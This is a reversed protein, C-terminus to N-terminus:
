KRQALSTWNLIVTLPNSTAPQDENPPAPILVRKGDNAIAYDIYSTQGSLIRLSRPEFMAVPQGVQVSGSTFTLAVSMVRRDNGLYVLGKGDSRWLPFRGGATSVRWKGANADPFPRIYIESQVSEDSEYAMWREDPSLRGNSEDFQTQLYPKPTPPGAAPLVWLDMKAQADGAAYVIWHTSWDTPRKIVDSKVLVEEDGLGNSRKRYIDGVGSRDSGFVVWSADPSWVPSFDHHTGSTVRTRGGRQVDIMWLNGGGQSDDHIHTVVKQADSALSVGRHDAASDAVTALKKGALDYWTLARAQAAGGTRYALVTSSVSFASRGLAPNTRVDQAIAVPDGVLELKEVDFRQAFLTSTRVALVYGPPAYAAVGDADMLRKAKTPEDLSAVFISSQASRSWYLFHRGDPLFAPQGQLVEGHANDAKTMQVPAGGTAAVRFLGAPSGFVITGDPGWALGEFAPAECIVQPAGGDLDVRKLKREASAWFAVTRSDPSWFPRSASATGNLLRSEISTLARVWISPPSGTPGALFAIREGNPSVAAFPAVPAPGFDTGDPPMVAFQVVPPAAVTPGPRLYPVALAAVAILLVASLGWALRDYRRRPLPAVSTPGPPTAEAIASTHTAAEAIWRLQNAVDHASQWRADRDKALAISVIRDLMALSAPALALRSMEPSTAGLSSPARDLDVRSSVSSIPPPDSSMIAAILSAQTKGDFARRGTLMEYLLAGFAFIDTRADAEQGELQEPAMYQFTGLVTGAGTLAKTQTVALGTAPDTGTVKALGFDLLKAQPARSAGSRTLMVNGPKLDRHVIGHRHAAALADAIQIAVSLATAPPLGPRKADALRDQLTEGDVLEMVLFDMGDHQGVDYLSCINPHNLSSVARAEREFRQRRDPDASLHAPLVKIAVARDLRTDNARYVEGMGGTGIASLIEYPGLRTGAALPM